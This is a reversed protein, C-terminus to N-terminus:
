DEIIDEVKVQNGIGEKIQKKNKDDRESMVNQILAMYESTEQESKEWHPHKEKWDSLANIQLKSVKDISMDLKNESDHKWKDEDKIFFELNKNDSCHIPRNMPEIKALNKTFINTIGDIYGLKSTMNLDELSLTIGEIFETLNMAEKCKANLMININVTNGQMNNTINTNNHTVNPEKISTHTEILKQILMDKENIINDKEKNTKKLEKIIFGEPVINENIETKYGEVLQCKNADCIKKHRSLGSAFKFVKECKDCSYAGAKIAAKRVAANLYDIEIKKKHKKTDLHKSFDLKRPTSYNCYKCHYEKRNDKNSEMM